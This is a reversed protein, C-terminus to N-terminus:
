GGVWVKLASGSLRPLWNKAHLKIEVRSSSSDGSYCLLEGFSGSLDAFLILGIGFLGKTPNPIQPPYTCEKTKNTKNPEM